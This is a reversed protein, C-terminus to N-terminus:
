FHKTVTIGFARLLASSNVPDFGYGFANAPAVYPPDKNFLNTVSGTVRFGKLWGSGANVGPAYTLALDVTTWSSVSCNPQTICNPDSNNSYANQFNVRTNTVFDHFQWGLDAKARFRLPNFLTNDISLPQAAPTLKQEYRLIYSGEIAATFRGLETKPTAYRTSLDVGRVEVSSANEFGLNAIAVINNQLAAPPTAPPAYQTGPSYTGVPGTYDAFTRGPVAFEASIEAPTPNLQILSGLAAADQLISYYGFHDVLRTIQNDFNIWFYSADIKLGSFFSPEVTLGLNFSRATEPQLNPNTGDTELILSTGGPGKKPDPANVVLGYNQVTSADYLTPAQFSRAYSSHITLGDLPVWEVGFKPNASHGFDSYDDYRGSIDVRLRRVLPVANEAGILPVLLEGYVSDVRRTKALAIDGQPDSSNYAAYNLGEWRFQGGVALKIAGGPASLLTGDIRPEVSAVNYGIPDYGIAPAIFQYQADQERSFSSTLTANWNNSVRYDLQAAINYQNAQGNEFYVFPGSSTEYKRNSALADVSLTLQDTFDNHLSLYLQSKDNKPLLISPYGRTSSFSRDRTYLLNDKEYDFAAIMGGTSWNYGGVVDGGYDPAKGEAISTSRGSLELGSFDKKTIINVVGAVADSGYLASAGDTLIEVRDIASVPISSIDVVGGLATPALRRGNLLVLTAGPGLGRLNIGNAFTGNFEAGSGGFSIVPSSSSSAGGGQFNQPLGQIVDELRTYGQNLMDAQTITTVPTIPAVDHILTGTVVIESLGTKEDEASSSKSEKKPGAQNDKAASDDLPGIPTTLQALRTSHDASSPSSSTGNQRSDSTKSDRQDKILVVSSGTIEYSLGTGSLLAEMAEQATFHGKLARSTKGSTLEAKYLLKHHSAIAFSQLAATLDESPINLDYSISRADADAFTLSGAALLAALICITLTRGVNRMTKLGRTIAASATKFVLVRM